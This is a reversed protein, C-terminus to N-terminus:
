ENKGEVGQAHVQKHIEQILDLVLKAPLEGLAKLIGNIQDLTLELNLKKM